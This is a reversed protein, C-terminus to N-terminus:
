GRDGVVSNATFPRSVVLTDETRRIVQGVLEREARLRRFVVRRGVQVEEIRETVRHSM